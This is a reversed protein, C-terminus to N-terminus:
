TQPRYEVVVFDAGATTSRFWAGPLAVATATDANSRVSGLLAGGGGAAFRVFVADGFSVADEALMWIRGNRLVTLEDDVAYGGAVTAELTTDKLSFGVQTTGTVEGTATPLAVRPPRDDAGGGAVQHVFRGFSIAVNAVATILDFNPSADVLMGEVAVAPDQTYATQSM